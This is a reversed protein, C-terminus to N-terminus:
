VLRYRRRTHCQRSLDEPQVQSVVGDPYEILVEANTLGQFLLRLRPPELRCMWFTCMGIAASSRPLVIRVKRLGSMWEICNTAMMWEMPDSCRYLEQWHIIVSQMLQLREALIAKTFCRITEDGPFCFTNNRYLMGIGESYIRRCSILFPLIESVEHDTWLGPTWAGTVTKPLHASPIEPLEGLGFLVSENRHQTYCKYHGLRNDARRFIHIHIFDTLVYEYIMSRIETPLRGFLPSQLRASMQRDERLPLALLSDHLMRPTLPRPRPPLPEPAEKQLAELYREDPDQQALNGCGRRGNQVVFDHNRLRPNGTLKQALLMCGYGCLEFPMLLGLMVM